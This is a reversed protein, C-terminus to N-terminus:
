YLLPYALKRLAVIRLLM